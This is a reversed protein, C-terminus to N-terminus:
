TIAPTVAHDLEIVAVTAAAMRVVFAHLFGM